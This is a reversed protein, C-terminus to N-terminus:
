TPNKRYSQHNDGIMPHQLSVQACQRLCWFKATTLFMKSFGENFCGRCNSCLGLGAADLEEFVKKKNHVTDLSAGRVQLM